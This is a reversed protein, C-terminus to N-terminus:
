PIGRATCQRPSTKATHVVDHGTMDVGALHGTQDREDAPAALDMNIRDALLSKVAMLWHPADIARLVKRDALEPLWPDVADDLRLRCEEVLIM